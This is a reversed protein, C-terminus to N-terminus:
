TLYTAVLNWALICVKILLILDADITSHRFALDYVRCGEAKKGGGILALSQAIYANVSPHIKISKYYNLIFMLTYSLLHLSVNEADEIALHWHCLRARVLARNALAHHTQNPSNTITETLSIETDALRDQRWSDLAADTINILPLQSVSHETPIDFQLQLLATFGNQYTIIWRYVIGVTSYFAPPVDRSYKITIKGSNGGIPTFRDDPPPAPQDQMWSNPPADTINIPPLQPVFHDIPIDFHFQLLATFGNQYTTIWCYVIGVTSYFAPPVDRLDKIAIKGSNGGIALFQDDPSLAISHIAQTHQILGVRAHTSTDWFTVTDNTSYAIFKRHQPLSICSTDNTDPVLWDSVVSGTSAEFEKIKEDSLVFLHDNSWLLGTGFLPTVKGPIDVLLRGDSSDYIRVSDRTATAIRDGQPSYKAAVVWDGHDLSLVKKRAAVDWVTATQNKSATVVRTSDFSFDLGLIDGLNDTHSFVQEFTNADWVIVAGYYTGAAIWRGDKSAALCYVFRAAMTAMQKGDEVRWVGLENGPGGGVIYKGSATFTKARIESGVDIEILPSGEQRVTLM